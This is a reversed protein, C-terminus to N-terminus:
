ETRLAAMPPTRLAGFAPPLCAGIAVALVFAAAAAYTAPDTARIEFLFAALFRSGAASVSLGAIVGLIAPVMGYSLVLRFLQAGAAGIAARIALERRRETVSRSVVGFLGALALLLAISAFAVTAFAYFRRDATSEAVVTAVATLGEAPQEPDITRVADRLREAVSAQMGPQPKVLLCILEVPAQARPRYFAPAANRTVEAYRVDGVVGVIEIHAERIVIKRGVPSESGFHLRGYSESVVMVPPSTASDQEMFVRGERLPISLMRFYEPGVSRMHGPKPKGSPPGVVSLFDVGRMPVATTLTADQVGPLARVHDLLAREFAAVQASTKYKPNHLRTEMTLLDGADFGLEVQQIKWFSHLLLGSGIMLVLVVAVQVGVIAGRWANAARTGTATVGSRRISELLDRRIVLAVPALSCLIATTVTIATAFALVTMDLSIQDARPVLAPLLRTALPLGAAALGLGAAGGLISLVLSEALLLRAIRFPGGGLAARVALESTRDVTRAMTLLGLNVCAILLVLAAVGILLMLGPRVEAAVHTHLPEVMATTEALFKPMYSDPINSYGRRVNRYLAVLEAEARPPAVGERLRGLMTYELARGPKIRSWPLLLYIETERPYTFQVSEPLVGVITFPPQDRPAWGPALRVQAGLADSSGGFRRQWLQHSIVAVPAAEDDDSAFTRGMAATVGLLEFLNPTVFAGRLRDTGDGRVLDVRGNITTDWAMIVAYSELFTNHRAVEHVHSGTVISHRNGPDTNSGGWLYVLRDPDTYPLPRLVVGHVISFVATNGGIGLALLLIAALTFSPRRRLTRIAERLDSGAGRSGGSSSLLAGMGQRLRQGVAYVLIGLAARWFRFSAAYSSGIGKRARLEALDGLIADALEPTTLWSLPRYLIHGM